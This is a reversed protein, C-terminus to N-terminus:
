LLLCERDLVRISRYDVGDDDNFWCEMVYHYTRAELVLRALNVAALKAPDDVVIVRFLNYYLEVSLGACRFLRSEPEEHLSQAVDNRLWEDGMYNEHNRDLGSVSPDYMYM